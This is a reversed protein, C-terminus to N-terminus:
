QISRKLHYHIARLLAGFYAVRSRGAVVPRVIAGAGRLVQRDIKKTIGEIRWLGRELMDFPRLGRRRLQWLGAASALPAAACALMFPTLLIMLVADAVASITTRGAAPRGFSLAVLWVVVALAALSFFTVPLYIGLRNFRRLREARERQRVSPAFGAAYEENNPLNM